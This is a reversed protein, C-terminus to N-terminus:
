SGAMFIVRATGRAGATVQRPIRTPHLEAGASGSTVTVLVAGTAESSVAVSVAVAVLVFAAVAVFVFATVAPVPDLALDPSSDSGVEVAPLSVEPAEACSSA